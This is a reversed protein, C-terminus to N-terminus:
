HVRVPEFDYARAGALAAACNEVIAMPTGDAAHIAYFQADGPRDFQRALEPPMASAPIPKVYVLRGVGSQAFDRGPGRGAQGDIKIM